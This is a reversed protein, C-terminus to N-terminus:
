HLIVTGNTECFIGSFKKKDYKISCVGIRKQDLGWARALHAQWAYSGV